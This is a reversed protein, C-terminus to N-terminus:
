LFERVLALYHEMPFTPGPDTHNSHKFAASVARHTTIGRKGTRLVVADRFVPPVDYKRCLHATLKASRRLMTESYDDAWDESSQNAFGAHELGVGNHNAGPAHYAIDKEHVCQVISDADICYHAAALPANGGAFWSAVNEATTPKESAEMSHIVILDIRTRNAPTFNRAQLFRDTGEGGDGSPGPAPKLGAARRTLPGVFGDPKLGHRGQWTKTAAETVPGFLGDPPVGLLRQWDAVDPGHLGRRLTRPVAQTPPARPAPAALPSGEPVAALRWLPIVGEDSVLGALTPDRLVDVMDHNVGDVRMSRKVLRVVQSYDVHFRNHALGLPQWLTGHPAGADHWGYNAAREPHGQLRNTVVWDKGVTSVLGTRGQRKGEVEEHHRLMRSTAAMAADPSQLCPTLRVQAQQFLLDSIRTTPLLAQFFDAIHQATTHSLSVRVWDEANGLALVDASVTIQAHHGEWTSILTTWPVYTAGAKVAALIAQERAHGPAEPLAALFTSGKM